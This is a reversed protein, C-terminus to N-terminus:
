AYAKNQHERLLIGIPTINAHAIVADGPTTRMAGTISIAAQRQISELRKTIERPSSDTPNPKTCDAGRKHYWIDAAYSIQPATVANYLKRAEAIRIGSAARTYRKFATTWKVAKERVKEHQAAWSLRSDLIVGLLKANPSPNIPKETSTTGTGITLMLPKANRAKEHSLTFDVLTLKNMELPSNYSRSWDFVGNRREMMDKLIAHTEDLDKGSALLTTDDVFGVIGENRNKANAIRILPANYIAYLLMSLPCGQCCGNTPHFPESIHDDFKLQIQRQTLIMDVYRLYGPALKRARMNELLRARQMNPFAAQIDLFLASAAQGRRWANKIFQEVHHLADTTSRGPRGGFQYDPLLNFAECEYSLDETVIISQVKAITEILAIPRYSNPLEYTARNPKPLVVQQIKGFLTPYHNLTCIANYITSLWPALVHACQRLVAHSIGSPGPAKFPSLERMTAIIREPTFTPFQSKNAQPPNGEKFVYEDQQHQQEAPFFTGALGRAKEENTTAYTGDPNRLDPIRRRGYDTPESKMYRHVSWLDKGSVHEIWEKWHDAKAKEIARAFSKNIEKYALHSPHDPQGRWKYHQSSARNRDRRINSLENTWWRKTHPTIRITKAIESTTENIINFLCNTAEELQEKNNIPGTLTADAETLREQLREEYEEWNITKYNFRISSSTPIYTLDITTIIPMHDTNAPRRGSKVNCSIITSTSDSCRWVNDPRTWNGTGRAQLTPIDRPLVMELRMNVILDLLPNLLRDPSKLHNNTNSEWTSHHRNFDGMIILEISGDDPAWNNENNAWEEAIADINGNHNIDNYINIIIIARDNTSIKAATIDSNQINIQQIQSSDIRTNILLVSRTRNQNQLNKNSPYIVTWHPNAQTLGLHDIYPEQLAIIDWNSPHAMALLDHQATSSKAVNQQWINFYKAPPQDNM